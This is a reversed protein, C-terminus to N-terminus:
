GDLYPDAFNFFNYTARSLDAVLPSSIEWELWDHKFMFVVIVYDGQPSYVIGADGHTDNVWGHRHALPIQDPIGEEILSGIQNAQMTQLLQRCEEQTLEEAYIARLAGGNQEACYYLMALLTGMDEATTQLTPSPITLLDEESNAPTALTAQGARPPSDYPAVLFTNLLGLRQMEETLIEAGRYPDNEGAVVTLLANASSNGPQILTNSILTTQSLTPSSELRRYTELVIPVKLMDMGSIPLDAQYAIEQGTALDIVFVSAIGNFSQLHNTILRALLEIDPREPEIPQVILQAQRNTARYLANEVNELSAEIDTQYGIEGYQFSLSAPVPQAPQTPKDLTSAILALAERLTQRNHTARLEVDQVDVPRGWLFGWFGAWFDQQSRQYDAENLMTALDLQFEVELPTIEIASDLHYVLIPATLYRESLLQSAQEDTLGGVDIGAIAMGTPLFSQVISYQYLRIFLFITVGVMVFVTLWQGLGPSSQRNM